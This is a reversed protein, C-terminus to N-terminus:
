YRTAMEQAENEKSYNMLALELAVKMNAEKEIYEKIYAIEHGPSLKSAASADQPHIIHYLSVLAAADGLRDTKLNELLLNDIRKNLTLYFVMPGFHRTFRLAGYAQSDEIHNFVAHTVRHYEPDDADYEVCARDLIFVYDGRELVRKLYEPQFMQPVKFERGPRPFYTQNANRREAWYAKRLTGDPDRAVITRTRDTKGFSIDTILFKCEDYGILEPDKAIVVDIEKRVPVVPPMQIMQEALKRAKEQAEQLQESTMFKYEPVSLSTGLKRKSFIKNMDFGTLSKLIAQVESKFFLLIDENNYNAPPNNSSSRLVISNNSKM